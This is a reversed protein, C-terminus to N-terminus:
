KRKIPSYDWAHKQLIGKEKFRYGLMLRFTSIQNSFKIDGFKLNRIQNSESIGGFFRDGNYGISIRATQFTNIQIDNRVFGDAEAYRIWYHAPGLSLTLNLFFKKVVLNYSYGPGIGLSTFRTNHASSGKGFNALESKTILASDAQLNFSSVIYSFIFSGRSSLQQETFTYASRISFRNADFIYSVTLGFNKTQLDSRHPFPQNNPLVLNPNSFYFGSYKQHYADLLWRKSISNIQFDTVTSTGYREQNKVNIPLSLSAEIGIDFINLSLGASYSNNPRFTLKKNPNLLSVVDFSLNRHKLVPGLFFHDPFNRVYKNRVSDQCLATQSLLFLLLILLSRELFM